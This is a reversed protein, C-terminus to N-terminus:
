AFINRPAMSGKLQTVVISFILYSKSSYILPETASSKKTKDKYNKIKKKLINLSVQDLYRLQVDTIYKLNDASM